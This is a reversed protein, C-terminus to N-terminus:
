AEMECDKLGSGVLENGTWNLYPEQMRKLQELAQRMETEDGSALADDIIKEIRSRGVDFQLAPDIHPDYSWENHGEVGDSVTDVMGVHPNNKRKDDYRYSVIQGSDGKKRPSRAVKKGAPKAAPKSHAPEEVDEESKLSFDETPNALRVSGGRGKGRLLIGEEILGERIREFEGDFLQIGAAAAADRFATELAQNGISSGDEPVNQLILKRLVSDSQTM